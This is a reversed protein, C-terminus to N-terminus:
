FRGKLKGCLFVVSPSLCACQCTPSSESDGSTKGARAMRGLARSVAAPGWSWLFLTHLRRRPHSASDATPEGSPPEKGKLSTPRGAPILGPNFQQHTVEGLQAKDLTSEERGGPVHPDQERPLHWHSGVAALAGPSLM